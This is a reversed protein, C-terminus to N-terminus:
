FYLFRMKQKRYRIHRLKITKYIEQIYEKGNYKCNKYECVM